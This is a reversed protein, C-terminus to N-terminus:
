TASRGAACLEELEFEQLQGALEAVRQPCPSAVHISLGMASSGLSSSVWACLVEPGQDAHAEERVDLMIAGTAVMDRLAPAATEQLILREGPSLPRPREHLARSREWRDAVEDGHRERLLALFEERTTVGILLRSEYVGSNDSSTEGRQSREM